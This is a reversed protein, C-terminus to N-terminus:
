RWVNVVLDIFIVALFTVAIWPLYRLPDFDGPNSM